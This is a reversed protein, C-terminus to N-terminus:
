RKADRDEKIRAQKGIKGRLYYLKARRVKGFRVVEIKELRPSHLLFTREVGISHSIKRVTFAKRAGGNNDAIVVGEFVQIREKDGEVVKAYVKVTDGPRFKPLAARQEISVREFETRKKEKAEQERRRNENNAWIERSREIEQREIERITEYGLAM